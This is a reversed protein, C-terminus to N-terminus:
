GNLRAMVARLAPACRSVDGQLRAHDAWAGALPREAVGRGVARAPPGEAAGRWQLVARCSLILRTVAVVAALPAAEAILWVDLAVLAEHAREVEDFARAGDAGRPDTVVQELTTLVAALRARLDAQRAVAPRRARDRWYQYLNAALSATALAAGVIALLTQLQADM